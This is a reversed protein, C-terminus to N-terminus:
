RETDKSAPWERALEEHRQAEPEFVDRGSPAAGRLAMYAGAIEKHLKRRDLGTLPDGALQLGSVLYAVRAPRSDWPGAWSTDVKKHPSRAPPNRVPAATIAELAALWPGADLNEPRQAPDGLRDVLWGVVSEVEGLALAHYHRAVEDHGTRERLWTFVRPWGDASDDDRDALERLLLRRLVPQLVAADGSTHLLSWRDHIVAMDGPEVLGELRNMEGVDRAAACTTLVKVHATSFGDLLQDRLQATLADDLVESLPQEPRDRLKDVLVDTAWPHGGAFQYLVRRVHAPPSMGVIPLAGKGQVMQGVQSETLNRLWIALRPRRLYPEIPGVPPLREDDAQFPSEGASPLVTAVVTMPDPGAEEKGREKALQRLFEKGAEADANDLLIVCNLVRRGARRRVHFADRLDALFAGLLIEDLAARDPVRAHASQSMSVLRDVPDTNKVGHWAVGRGLLVKRASPVLLLLDILLGLGPRLITKLGPFRTTPTLDPVADTLIGRIRTIGRAKALAATMERHATGPIDSVPTRIAILAAAFRPFPLRGYMGCKENLGLALRVLMTQRTLTKDAACDLLAHPINGRLRSALTTLLTTKGIHHPGTFYLVPLSRSEPLRGEGPRDLFARVLRIASDQGYSM